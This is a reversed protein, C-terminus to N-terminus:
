IEDIRTEVVIQQGDGNDGHSTFEKKTRQHNNCWKLEHTDGRNGEHKTTSNNCPNDSRGM